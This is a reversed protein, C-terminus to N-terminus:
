AEPLDLVDLFLAAALLDASGGPSLGVRTLRRDLAALLGPGRPTGPGGARLVSVAGDQVMRLGTRGGRHRVCTDDLTTMLALLGTLRATKEATGRRRAACLAPLAVL